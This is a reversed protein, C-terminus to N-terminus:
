PTGGSPTSSSSAPSTETRCSPNPHQAASTVYTNYLTQYYGQVAAAYSGHAGSGNWAGAVCAVWAKTAPGPQAKTPIQGCGEQAAKQALIEDTVQRYCAQSGYFTQLATMFGTPQSTFLAADTFDDIAELWIPSPSGSFTSGYRVYRLIGTYNQANFTMGLAKLLTGFATNPPFTVQKSTGPVQYPKTATPSLSDLIETTNTYTAHATEIRVRVANWASIRDFLAPTVGTRQPFAQSPYPPYQITGTKGITAVPASSPPPLATLSGFDMLRSVTNQLSPLSNLAAGYHPTKVTAGSAATPAVTFAQLCTPVGGAPPHAVFAQLLSLTIQTRGYSSAAYLPAQALQGAPGGTVSPTAPNGTQAACYANAATCPNTGPQYNFVGSEQQSIAWRTLDLTTVSACTPAPTKATTAPTAPKACAARMQAAAQSGGIPCATPSAPPPPPVAGCLSNSAAWGPAIGLLSLLAILLTRVASRRWPPVPPQPLASDYLVATTM